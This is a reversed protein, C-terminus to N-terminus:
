EDKESLPADLDIEVKSVLAQARAALSPSITRLHKPNKKIDEALFSLLNGLLPDEETSRSIVVQGNKKLTYRIKDRKELHLAERILEPITTQYRDTLTSESQPSRAM